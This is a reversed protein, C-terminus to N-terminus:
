RRFYFGGGGLLAVVLIIILITYMVPTLAVTTGASRAM